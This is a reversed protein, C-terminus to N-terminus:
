TFRNCQKMERHKKKESQFRIVPKLIERKSFERYTQLAEDIEIEKGIVFNPKAVGGEVLGKLFPSRSNPMVPRAKFSLGKLFMVAFPIALIRRKENATAGVLL